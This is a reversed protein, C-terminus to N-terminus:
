CDNQKGKAMKPTHREPHRNLDMIQEKINPGLVSKEAGILAIEIYSMLQQSMNSNDPPYQNLYKDVTKSFQPHVAKVKWKSAAYRRVTNTNKKRKTIYLKM